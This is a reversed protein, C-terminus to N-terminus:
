SYRYSSSSTSACTSKKLHYPPWRSTCEKGVRREESRSQHGRLPANRAVVSADPGFRLDVLARCKIERDARRERRSGHRSSRTSSIPLACTQVGTVGIDRIGGEAQLLCGM